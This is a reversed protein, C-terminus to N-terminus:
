LRWNVLDFEGHKPHVMWSTQTPPSHRGCSHDYADTGSASGGIIYTPAAFPAHWHGMVMLDFQEIGTVMRKTAELGVKRQVGYYPIGAWGKMQHGHMILYRRGKVRVVRQEVPHINVTANDHRRLMEQVIVAMPYGYTNFGGDKHQPKKTLRGHNDATIIDVTLSSFHPSLSSALSALLRGAEVCQVPAPYDNTSVLEHHIDGSILDGTVLLRCEDVDYNSRHVEAWNIVKEALSDIRARLVAPSFEGFGEIEDPDQVAGMHWDTAVLVVSVPSSVRTGSPQHYVTEPPPIAASHATLEHVFAQM